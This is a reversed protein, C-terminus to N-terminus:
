HTGEIWSGYYYAGFDNQIGGRRAWIVDSPIDIAPTTDMWKEPPSVKANLSRSCSWPHRGIPIWIGDTREKNLYEALRRFGGDSVSVRQGTDPDQYQHTLLAPEDDVTGQRWLHRIEAPSLDNYDCCFHVHYRHDGHLGEIAYIYDLLAKEGRWRYVRGFFARLSRRVDAFDKPLYLNDYTLTYHTGMPGLLALRIELRDVQRRNVATRQYRKIEAKARHDLQSEGSAFRPRLARCEKVLPGARQRCCHWVGSEGMFIVVSNQFHPPLLGWRKSLM